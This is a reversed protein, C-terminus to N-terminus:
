QKTSISSTRKDSLLVDDRGNFTKTIAAPIPVLIFDFRAL